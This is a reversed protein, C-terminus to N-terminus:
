KQEQIMETEGMGGMSRESGKVEEVCGQASYGVEHGSLLQLVSTTTFLSTM